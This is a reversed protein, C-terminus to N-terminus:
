FAPYFSANEQMKVLSSLKLMHTTTFCWQLFESYQDMYNMINLIDPLVRYKPNGAVRHNEFGFRTPYRFFILYGAMMPWPIMSWETKRVNQCRKTM